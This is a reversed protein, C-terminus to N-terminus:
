QSVREPPPRRFIDRFMGPTLISLPNVQVRPNDASGTMTFNFGFLGEGRRTFLEGISNVFYIPSLVGQMDMRETGLDYRGDLSLGLSPGVAAANYLTLMDRSLTFEAEVTDLGIGEANMQDILGVVSIASLLETLAPAQVLRTGRVTVRGDQQGPGSPRLVLDLAGGRMNRLVGADAMARGADQSTIRVASGGPEPLVRGTIQTGGNVRATFPGDLGGETGFSGAFDTLRISDSIVLSDLRVELPAAGEGDDGGGDTAAGRIDATGSGILIQPPRDAGRGQITIQADLWGGAQVRAFRAEDLLGDGRLTVTGAASLGPADLDLRTVVPSAGLTAEVELRGTTAAPKTWGLAAVNLTARNLDSIMRVLPPEGKVLDIDFQGAASGRVSGQPLAIGFEDLFAQSLDVTGEVRSRDRGEDGFRKIWTADVSALGVRAPGGIQIGGPDARLTLRDATLVHGEVLKDSRVDTLTGRVTYDLDGPRIVKVIDFALAAEVLATGTAEETSRGAKQMLEFPPLDLLSLAAPIPGQGRLAFNARSPKATVDPIQLLTGSVDLQGGGPATVHGGELVMTYADNLVSAYGSAKEVPPLQPMYHVVGDRFKYSVSLRPADAPGARLAAQVDYIDVTQLNETLWARTGRAFAVPWLALLRDPAIRNLGMDMAVRWGDADAAVRGQGVFHSDGDMFAIQGIDVTFPDLRLRFDLAADAFSAPTEFLGDPDLALTEARFQGVLAGPWGARFERLYAHGEATVRAIDSDLTLRDVTIRQTAPDFAFHADAGAFRVPRAGPDPQLAGAGIELSAMLDAIDGGATFQADLSGSIPADLVELFALVPSQAAIDVAAANEFRATLRAGGNGKLAVLSMELTALDETGNFVEATVGIEVEGSSNDVELQGGTVQWIRGSRADELSITLEDADIRTVGSLPDAAFATDLSGLVGALTGSTGLGGGFSLDFTGDTRRRLTIQAGSLRLRRPEIVGQILAASDLRAGLSNLRAIEAGQADFVGVNRLVVRPLASTSIELSAGGLTIRSGELGANLRTEARETMWDPLRLDRDTLTLGATVVLVVLLLAIALTGRWLWRLPRGRRVGTGRRADTTTEQEKM